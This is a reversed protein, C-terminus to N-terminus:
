SGGDKGYHANLADCVKIAADRVDDNGADPDELQKSLEDHAAALDKDDEDCNLRECLADIDEPTAETEIDQMQPMANIGGLEPSKQAMRLAALVMALEKPTLKM